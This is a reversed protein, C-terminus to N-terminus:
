KTAPVATTKRIAKKKRITQMRTTQDPMSATAAEGADKRDQMAGVQDKYKEFAIAQALSEQKPKSTFEEGFALTGVALLGVCVMREVIKMKM